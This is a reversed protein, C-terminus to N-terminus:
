GRQILIEIGSSVARREKLTIVRRGEERDEHLHHEVAPLSKLGKKGVHLFPRVRSNTRSAPIVGDQRSTTSSCFTRLPISRRPM